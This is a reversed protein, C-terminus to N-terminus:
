LCKVISRGSVNEKGNEENLYIMAIDRNEINKKEKTQKFNLSM